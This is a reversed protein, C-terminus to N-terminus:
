RHRKPFVLDFSRQSMEFRLANHFINGLHASYNYIMMVGGGIAWSAPRPHPLHRPIAGAPPLTTNDQYDPSLQITLLSFSGVDDSPIVTANSM